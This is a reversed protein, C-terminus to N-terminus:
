LCQCWGECEFDRMEGRCEGRSAISICMWRGAAEVEVVACVGGFAISTEMLLVVVVGCEEFMRACEDLLALM